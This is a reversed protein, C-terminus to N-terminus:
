SIHCIGLYVGSSCVGASCGLKSFIRQGYFVATYIIAAFLPILLKLALTRVRPDSISSDICDFGYPSLFIFSSLVNTGVNNHMQAEVTTFQEQVIRHAQAFFFLVNISATNSHGQFLLVVCVGAGLIVATALILPGAYSACESCRGDYEFYNPLCRSCLLSDVSRGHGCSYDTSVATQCDTSRYCKLLKADLLLSPNKVYEAVPLPTPYYGREVMFLTKGVEVSCSLLAPCARCTEATANWWFGRACVCQGFHAYVIDVDLKGGDNRVVRPCVLGNTPVTEFSRTDFALFNPLSSGPSRVKTKQVSLTNMFSFEDSIDGYTFTESLDLLSLKPLWLSWPALQGKIQNGRLNFNALNPFTIQNLSTNSSFCNNYLWM